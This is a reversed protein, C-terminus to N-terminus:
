GGLQDLMSAVELFVQARKQPFRERLDTRLEEYSMRQWSGNM